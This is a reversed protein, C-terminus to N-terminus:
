MCFSHLVLLNLFQTHAHTDLVLFRFCPRCYCMLAEGRNETGVSRSSWPRQLSTTWPTQLAEWNWKLCSRPFSYHWMEVVQALSHPSLNTSVSGQVGLRELLTPLRDASFWGQTRWMVVFGFFSFLFFLSIHGVNTFFRYSFQCM